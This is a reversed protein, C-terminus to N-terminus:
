LAVLDFRHSKQCPNADLAINQVIRLKQQLANQVQCRLVLSSTEIIRLDEALTVHVLLRRLLYQFQQSDIRGIAIVPHQMGQGENTETLMLARNLKVSRQKSLSRLRRLQMQRDCM